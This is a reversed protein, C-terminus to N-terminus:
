STKTSDVNDKQYQHFFKDNGLWTFFSKLDFAPAQIGTRFVLNPNQLVAMEDWLNQSIFDDLLFKGGEVLVSQVNLEFLQKSVQQLINKKFDIQIFRINNEIDSKIGNFVITEADANYINFTLPVQLQQDILVRTPNKGVVLRTTLFPNDKLATNKGIMIGMVESRLQHVFKNAEHGTIQDREAQMAAGRSIFGDATQAWKLMFYPRKNEHFTIFRRNLHRAEKELIGQVVEIGAQKLKQIGRGSVQPNPDSCAIVVKKFGKSIILDACPPTKGFHSCPELNVYLTCDAASIDPPLNQIADVEAHPAGFRKHFGTAVVKNHAVIVCGVQPNPAVEPWGYIALDLTLHMFDEHNM